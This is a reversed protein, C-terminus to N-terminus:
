FPDARRNRTQFAQEKKEEYEIDKAETPGKVSKWLKDARATLSLKYAGTDLFKSM